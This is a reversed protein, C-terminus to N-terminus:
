KETPDEKNVVTARRIAANGFKKRISLVSDEIAELRLQASPDEFINQQIASCDEKLNIARIGVSRLPFEWSYNEKFIKMGERAIHISLDSPVELSRSFEKVQLLSTRTHVQIGGAFLGHKRLNASIDEALMLFTQWVADNDKFDEAQTVSRGISKPKDSRSIPIVPSNDEGLAYKKLCIGNKGFIRELMLEDCLTLDGVTFVGSSNLKEVTKRGAFLLDGVPLPWVKEKYNERSIVTVADPKQMDSGLKAFIKNFSVGVSVTIGLERKIDCRIKHAIEEGNGFLMTSGTVDLWCEDIGFPEVIDTYREYIRRAKLSFENYKTYDPPLTILEPCKQKAEWIAEATKVGYSKAIDNKALIIGHRKERSGCIAVPLRCLTQNELLTVSAFFNNLDCHLIIRDM